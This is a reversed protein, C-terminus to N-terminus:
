CGFSRLFLGCWFRVVLFRLPMASYSYSGLPPPLPAVIGPAPHSAGSSSVTTCNENALNRLVNGLEPFAAALGEQVKSM